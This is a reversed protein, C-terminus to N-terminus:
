IFAAVVLLASLWHLSIATKSYRNTTLSPSM